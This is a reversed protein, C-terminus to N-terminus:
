HIRDSFYDFPPSILRGVNNRHVCCVAKTFASILGANAPGEKWVLSLSGLFPRSLNCSNGHCFLPRSSTLHNGLHNEKGRYDEDSRWRQWKSDKEWGGRWLNSQRITSVIRPPRYMLTDRLCHVGTVLLYVHWTLSCAALRTELAMRGFTNPIVLFNDIALQWHM